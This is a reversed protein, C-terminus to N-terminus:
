NDSKAPRPAIVKQSESGLNRHHQLEYRESIRYITRTGGKPLQEDVVDFFETALLVAKLTALGFRIELDVLENPAERWILNAATTLFTWGNARATRVAIEGLMAVLRSSRLFDQELRQEMEPSKLFAVQLHRCEDMSRVWGLLRDMMLMTEALQTDLYEQASAMDGGVASHWRPLFNHILDNRADVLAKMERDHRDIFQADMEMSFRCGMWIEDIDDPVPREAPSHLVTNKLKGALEGMTSTNVTAVHKEVHSEMKSVPGNPIFHVTLRKLLHEVNQFNVVNRGVSRLVEDTESTRTHPRMEM